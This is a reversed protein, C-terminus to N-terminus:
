PALQLYGPGGLLPGLEGIRLVFRLGCIRKRVAVM